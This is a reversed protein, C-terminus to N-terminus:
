PELLPKLSRNYEAEGVGEILLKAIKQIEVPNSTLWQYFYPTALATSLIEIYDSTESKKEILKRINSKLEYKLSRIRDSIIWRSVSKLGIENDFTELLTDREVEDFFTDLVKGLHIRLLPGSVKNQAYEIENSELHVLLSIVSDFKNNSHEFHLLKFVRHPISEFGCIICIEYELIKQDFPIKASLANMMLDSYVKKYFEFKKKEEEDLTDPSAKSETALFKGGLYADRELHTMGEISKAIDDDDCKWRFLTIAADETVQYFPELLSDLIIQPSEFHIRSSNVQFNELDFVLEDSTIRWGPAFDLIRGSLYSSNGILKMWVPCFFHSFASRRYSEDEYRIARFFIRRREANDTAYVNVYFRHGTGHPLVEIDIKRKINNADPFSFSKINSEFLVDAGWAKVEPERSIILSVLAFRKKDTDFVNLDENQMLIPLIDDIQPPLNYIPNLHNEFALHADSDGINTM